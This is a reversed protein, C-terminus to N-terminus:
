GARQRERQADEVFDDAVHIEDATMRREGRPLM